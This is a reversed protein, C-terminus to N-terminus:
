RDSASSSNLHPQDIDCLLSVSVGDEITTDETHDPVPALASGKKKQDIDGQLEAGGVVKHRNKVVAIRYIPKTGCCLIITLSRVLPGPTCM